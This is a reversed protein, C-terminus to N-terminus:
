PCGDVQVSLLRSAALLLFDYFPVLDFSSVIPFREFRNLAVRCLFSFM